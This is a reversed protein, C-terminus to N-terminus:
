EHLISEWNSSKLFITGYDLLEKFRKKTGVRSWDLDQEILWDILVRVIEQATVRKGTAAKTKRGIDKLYDMYENPIVINLQNTTKERERIAETKNM